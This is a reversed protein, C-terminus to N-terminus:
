YIKYYLQNMEIQKKKYIDHRGPHAIYKEKQDKGRIRLFAEEMSSYVGLSCLTVMLAGIATSESDEMHYLPIGYVDAQMQNIVPSNTLGGGIYAREIVAYKKLLQINNNIEMCIGELIAKLIDQRRTALTIGAFVAKAEANWDPTSKGQFYPLVLCKGVNEEEKKLERNIRQYDIVDDDYFNKCFWDFASCCTLVNAEMIYKGRVASCNYIVDADLKDSLTDSAAILYGGTGTVISITGKAYAGQGVAACQQDGGASIVPVGCPVGVATSFEVTTYGCISGPAKLQCLQEEHIQFLELLDSDWKRERLNMLNSRSGYTHDTYYEGTMRHMIYEPINVFKHVKKYIDPRNQKVWTMKSGSFVTNVKSGSREFIVSNEKELEKCIERNRVDQWMIANMLPKGDKDIPIISSRQATIAIAEITDNGEDAMQVIQKMILILAEEWEHPSQEIDGNLKSRTQYKVQRSYKKNGNDDFLIGRMSSSGIDIILVNMSSVEKESLLMM